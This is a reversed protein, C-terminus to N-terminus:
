AHQGAYGQGTDHSTRHTGKRNSSKRFGLIHKGKRPSPICHASAIHVHQRSVQGTTSHFIDQRAARRAARRAALKESHRGPVRSGVSKHLVADMAPAEPLKVMSELTAFFHKALATEKDVKPAIGQKAAAVERDHEAEKVHRDIRETETERAVGLREDLEKRQWIPLRWGAAAQYARLIEPADIAADAEGFRLEKEAALQHAAEAASDMAQRDAEMERAYRLSWKKQSLADWRDFDEPRSGELLLVEIMAAMAAEADIVNKHEHSPESVAGAKDGAAKTEAWLNLEEAKAKLQRLTMKCLEARTPGARTSPPQGQQDVEPPGCQSGPEDGPQARAPAPPHEGERSADPHWLM